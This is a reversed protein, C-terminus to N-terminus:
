TEDEEPEAEQPRPLDSDEDRERSAQLLTLMAEVSDEHDEKIKRLRRRTEQIAAVLAFLFAAVSVVLLVRTLLSMDPSGLGAEQAERASRACWLSGSLMLFALGLWGVYARNRFGSVWGALLCAGAFATLGAVLEPSMM